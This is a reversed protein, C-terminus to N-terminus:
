ARGIGAKCAAMGVGHGCWAWRQTTGPNLTTGPNNWPQELTTGPNNWPQELKPHWTALWAPKAFLYCVTSLQCITPLYNAFWTPPDCICFSRHPTTVKKTHSALFELQRQMHHWTSRPKKLYCAQLCQLYRCRQLRLSCLLAFYQLYRSRRGNRCIRWFLYNIYSLKGNTLTGVIGKCDLRARSPLTTTSGSRATQEMAGNSM